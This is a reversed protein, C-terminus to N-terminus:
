AGEGLMWPFRKWGLYAYNPQPHKACTSRQRTAVHPASLIKKIIFYIKSKNNKELIIVFTIVLTVLTVVLTILTVKPTMISM